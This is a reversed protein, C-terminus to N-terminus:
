FAWVLDFYLRDQEAKTGAPNGIQETRLYKINVTFPDYPHYAAIIQHGRVDTGGRANFGFDDDNLGHWVAATEINKYNYSLQWNGKNKSSGFTVGLNYAENIHSGAAPNNVYEGGLTIPFGGIFGPFSNLTFTVEGRAILPNFGETSNAPTGNQNIFTELGGSIDQQNKFNYMAGALRTSLQPTWKATWDIQNVFLYVDNNNGSGTSAFNEQIVYQGSTLGIRQSDNIDFGLKEQAGEPNYDPDFVMDTFWFANNMKGIEFQGWKAPTWKAYALDIFIFKRSGDNNLTSNASFPTAGNPSAANVSGAGANPTGAAVTGIDGSALRMGVEFHDSLAATLGLRLRYRFRNRDHNANANTPDSVSTPAYNDSNQWVGDYRGRFDGSLKINSVWAPLGLKNPEAKVAVVDKSLEKAEEATLVGKSVLKNLLADSSQGPASSAALGCFFVSVALKAWTATNQNM